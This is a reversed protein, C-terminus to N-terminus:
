RQRHGKRRLWHRHRGSHVARVARIVAHRHRRVVRLRIRAVISRHSSSLSLRERHGWLHLLRLWRLLRASRGHLGVHVRVIVRRSGNSGWHGPLWRHHLRRWHWHRWRHWWHQWVRMCCCGGGSGGRVVVRVVVRRRLHLQSTTQRDPTTPHCRGDVWEANARM